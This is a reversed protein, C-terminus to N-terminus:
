NEATSFIFCTYIFLSISIDYNAAFCQHLYEDDTM